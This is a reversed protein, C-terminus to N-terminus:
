RGQGVSQWLEHTGFRVVGWVAARKSRTNRDFCWATGGEPPLSIARGSEEKMIYILAEQM